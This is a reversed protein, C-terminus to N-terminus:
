VGTSAYCLLLRYDGAIWDRDGGQKLALLLLLCSCPFLTSSRANHVLYVLSFLIASEGLTEAM